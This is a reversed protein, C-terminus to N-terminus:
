LSPSNRRMGLPPAVGGRRMRTWRILSPFTIRCLASWVSTAGRVRGSNTLVSGFVAAGLAGGMSRFFQVTSTAVGVMRQEVANQVALTFVPMTVGLGFGLIIMNRVVTLYDTNVGMGSLLLMGAGALPQGQHVLEGPM